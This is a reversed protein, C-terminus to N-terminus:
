MKHASQPVTMEEALPEPSQSCLLAAAPQKCMVPAIRQSVPTPHRRLETSIVSPMGFSDTTLKQLPQSRNRDGGLM